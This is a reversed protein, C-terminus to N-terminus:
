QKAVALDEEISKCKVKIDIRRSAFADEGGASTRVVEKNGVGSLFVSRVFSDRQENALGCDLIACNYVSLARQQSLWLNSEDSGCSDTHGQILVYDVSKCLSQTFLVNVMIPVFKRLFERGDRSLESRGVEFRLKDSRAHYVLMNPCHPDIEFVLGNKGLLSKVKVLTSEVMPRVHKIERGDQEARIVVKRQGQSKVQFPLSFEEACGALFLCVFLAGFWCTVSRVSAALPGQKAIPYHLLM